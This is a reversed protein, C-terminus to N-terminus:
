SSMELLLLRAKIVAADITGDIVTIDIPQGDYYQGDLEVLFRAQRRIADNARRVSRANAYSNTTAAIGDLLHDVYTTM